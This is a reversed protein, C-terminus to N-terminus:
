IVWRPRPPLGVPNFRLEALKLDDGTLLNIEELRQLIPTGDLNTSNRDAIEQLIRHNPDDPNVWANYGKETFIVFAAKWLGLLNECFYRDKTEFINDQRRNPLAVSLDPNFNFSGDPRRQKPFLFARFDEALARAVAGENINPTRPDDTFTDESVIFGPVTYYILNGNKDWGGTIQNIRIGTRSSDTVAPYVAWHDTPRGQMEGKMTGVRQFIKDPDIGNKRYFDDSFDLPPENRLLNDQAKGMFVVPFTVAVLVLAVIAIAGERIGLRLNNRITKMM